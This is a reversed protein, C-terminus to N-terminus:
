PKFAPRKRFCPAKLSPDVTQPIRRVPLLTAVLNITRQTDYCLRLPDAGGISALQGKDRGELYPHLNFM